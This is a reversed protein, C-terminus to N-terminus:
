RSSANGEARQKLFDRIEFLNVLAHFGLLGRGDDAVIDFEIDFESMTHNQYVHFVLSRVDKATMNLPVCLSIANAAAYYAVAHYWDTVM